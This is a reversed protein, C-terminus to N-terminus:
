GTAGAAARRVEIVRQALRERAARSEPVGDLFLEYTLLAAIAVDAHRSPAAGPPFSTADNRLFQAAARIAVHARQAEDSAYTFTWRRAQATIPAKDPGGADIGAAAFVRCDFTRCTQPRLAYVTCRGGRLMPCHGRADFGMARHGPPLKPSEVVYEAPVLPLMRADGPRLVIYLASTCCGVCTGCAVETDRDDRLAARMEALWAGFEGADLSDPASM